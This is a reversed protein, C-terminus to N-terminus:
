MLCGGGEKTTQKKIAQDIFASLEVLVATEWSPGDNIIDDREALRERLLKAWGHTVKISVQLECPEIFMM